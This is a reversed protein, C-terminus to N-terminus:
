EGVCGYGKETSACPCTNLTWEDDQQRKIQSQHRTCRDCISDRTNSNSCSCDCSELSECTRLFYRNNSHCCFITENEDSDFESVKQVFDKLVTTRVNLCGSDSTHKPNNLNNRENDQLVDNKDSICKTDNNETKSQVRTNGYQLSDQQYFDLSGSTKNKFYNGKNDYNKENNPLSTTSKSKTRFSSECKSYKTPKSSHKRQGNQQQMALGSHGNEKKLPQKIPSPEFQGNNMTNNRPKLLDDDSVVDSFTVRTSTSNHRITELSYDLSATSRKPICKEEVDGNKGSPINDTSRTRKKTSNQNSKVVYKNKRGQATRPPSFQCNASADKSTISYRSVSTHGNQDQNQNEDAVIIYFFFINVTNSPKRLCFSDNLDQYISSM